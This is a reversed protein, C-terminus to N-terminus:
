VSALEVTVLKGIITSSIIGILGTEPGGKTHRFPIIIRDAVETPPDHDVDLGKTISTSKSPTTVPTDSPM